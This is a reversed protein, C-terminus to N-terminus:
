ETTLVIVRDESCALDLPIGPLDIMDVITYNRCDYGTLRSMNEGIYTLIFVETGEEDVCTFCPSSGSVPASGTWLCSVGYPPFYHLVVAAFTSQGSEFLACLTTDFPVTEISLIRPFGPMERRFMVGSFATSVLETTGNTGVLITDEDQDIAMCVPSNDLTCYRVINNTEARVEYIRNTVPEAVYFFPNERAAELASPAECISFIDMIGYSPGGLEIINGFAGILYVSNEYYSFEMDFYGSPSASGVQFSELLQYTDLDYKFVTGETTAVLLFSTTPCISRANPIDAITHIVSLDEAKLVTVGTGLASQFETLDTCGLSALTFAAAVTLIRFRVM